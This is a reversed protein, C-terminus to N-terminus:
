GNKNSKSQTHRIDRSQILSISGMLSLSDSQENNENEIQNSHM